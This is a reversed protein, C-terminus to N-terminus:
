TGTCTGADSDCQAWSSFTYSSTSMGLDDPANDDADEGWDGSAYLVVGPDLFLGGGVSGAGLNRQLIMSTLNATGVSSLYGGGGLSGATNDTISVGSLVAAGSTDALYFGGGSSGAMNSAIDISILELDDVQSLYLGGGSGSASNTTLELEQGALSSVYQLYVGGGDVALNDAITVYSINVDTVGVGVVGGGHAAGENYEITTATGDDFNQTITCADGLLAVGGGEPATNYTIAVGMLTSADDLAAGGGAASAENLTLDSGQLASNLLYAAGGYDAINDHFSGLQAMSADLYIGGGSTASNLYIETDTLDTGFSDEVYLAGGNDVALNDYLECGTIVGTSTYLAGGHDALNDHFISAQAQLEIGYAYVAGGSLAENGSFACESIVLMSGSASAGDIAGGTDGVGMTFGLGYLELDDGMTIIAGAGGGDLVTTGAGNLSRLVLPVSTTVNAPYVGDCLMVTDGSSADAVASALSTYAVSGISIAGDESTGGDCDNDLGDCIEDHEPNISTDTEDCDGDGAVYGTPADCSPGDEGYTASGVGDGDVDRYWTSMTGTDAGPDDDDAAGSCDEDTDDQDCIEIAGPNIAADSDDCDSADDTYGSPQDCAQSTDAADGYGDGDVDAYWTSLTGADVGSDDDDAAGSCDEDTDAEDCVEDMGPNIDSQDDDCDTADVVFGTPENCQRVFSWLDGYGDSDRDAYWTIWTSGDVSSDDDDSNGDCDEDTDDEDCIESGAPNVDSRTDDCDSDDDTYGSRADCAEGTTAADGYGDGDSDVYWDAYTTSDVSDDADDALGDCDEDTDDADCVETADPNVDARLDDCDSSDAPSGSPQDCAAQSTSADGFGDGDGDSYWTQQTGPDVGSDLDDALGSCDEDLDEADCVEQMDPNVDARTDDCDDAAGGDTYGYSSGTPEDCSAVSSLPDGHGDGDADAYWSTFTGGDVGADDDDADGSCDEDTDLDDCVETMDPNVDARTDDCDDADAAETYSADPERPPDCASGSVEPDGHGDEDVDAFFETFGSADVSDDDDDVLGDCDEDTDAEDCLETAGPNVAADGDDCDSGDSLYGPDPDCAGYGTTADGYGDGDADLFWYVQTGGDVGSDDDDALGSCDEDTDDEDCIEQMDPNVDPRTDDCDDAASGSTYGYSSGTPEDCSAESVLPDGHGDVDADAYWTSFTSGDVDPDDDDALGDCDEDTDDADCLETMGPNVDSRTDDCDDALSSDTYDHGTGEPTDCTDTSNDPDGYGDVDADVYFTSFTSSDVTSDDDDAAGDCDEDTDLEDCVEDAGPNVSADTDDCDSGDEIYDDPLSSPAVCSGVSTDPDGYGDADADAHYSIFTSADVGPDDDDALGNCDEDTSDEDCVEVLGPNVDDRTDDCDTDDLSYGSPPDCAATSSSADGYGDGDTDLYFTHYTSTDVSDDEGNVLGDCDEDHRDEDCVEQEAPSVETLTDDCDTNDIVYGSPMECSDHSNDPDGYGDADLDAYWTTFTSADVDSDDDDVMGDCDEDTGDEDCVEQGEPSVGADSDDCDTDDDVYGSPQDCSDQSDAADGFGDGDSDAYWTSFTGSDVGTDADDAAGSCDEDVDDEDCLETMGPNVDADGDDCDTGDTVAGSPGDCSTSGQDPDGYGDGDSDVYWDVLSDPDLGPDAEDALGNCDEDTDTEDCIETAGPNVAADGDDCDSDDDVRSDSADCAQTTTEPDGYGDRDSDVNWTTETSSDVGSDDDDAAGSCDEDVDDDDCVEQADPNIAVAGDDCDGDEETYGSPQDCAEITTDDDGYGDEDSDLYWVEYTTVDVGPDDDDAAGSCDEDTEDDDCIEQAGPNVGPDDDDCDDTLEVLDADPDCLLTGDVGEPGYGDGDADTYYLVQSSELVNPDSDDALDDCNEDTDDEDCVEDMGPNIGADNDDCDGDLITWGDDDLDPFSTDKTSPPCAALALALLPLLLRRGVPSLALPQSRPPRAPPQLAM